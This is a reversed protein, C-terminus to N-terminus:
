TGGIVISLIMFHDGLPSMLGSLESLIGIQAEHVTLLYDIITSGQGTLPPAEPKHHGISKRLSSRSEGM